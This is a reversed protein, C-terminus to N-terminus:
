SYQVASLVQCAEEARVVHPKVALFGWFSLVNPSQEAAGFFKIHFVEQIHFKNKCTPVIEFYPRGSKSFTVAALRAAILEGNVFSGYLATCRDPYIYAIAEGTMEGDKNM